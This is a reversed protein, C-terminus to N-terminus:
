SHNRTAQCCPCSDPQNQALDPSMSFLLLGSRQEWGLNRWFAQGDVNSELVMIHCKSIGQARLGGLAAAALRKGVGRNRFSPHVALHYLFGRRGDHGCLVTGVLVGDETVAVQSLDPNRELFAHIPEERDSDSLGMGPTNQWLELAAAYDHITFPRQLM